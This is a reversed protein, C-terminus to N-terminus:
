TSMNLRKFKELLIVHDVCDFAKSLDIFVSLVYNMETVWTKNLELIRVHFIRDSLIFHFTIDEYFVFTAFFVSSVSMIFQSYHIMAAAM